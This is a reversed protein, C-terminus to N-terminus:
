FENKLCTKWNEPLEVNSSIWMAFIGNLMTWYRLLRWRTEDQPIGQNEAIAVAVRRFVSFPASFYTPNRMYFDLYATGLQEMTQPLSEDLGSLTLELTRTLEQMVYARCADILREKSDFHRYIANHSVGCQTALRRLSLNELGDQSILTVAEELLKSKLNGHHYQDAM